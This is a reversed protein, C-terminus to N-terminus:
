LVRNLKWGTIERDGVNNSLAKLKTIAVM